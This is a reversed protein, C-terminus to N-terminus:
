AVAVLAQLSRPIVVHVAAAEAVQELLVQAVQLDLDEVVLELTDVLEVVVRDVPMPTILVALVALVVAMMHEVVFVVLVV